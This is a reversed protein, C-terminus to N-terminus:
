LSSSDLLSEWHGPKGDLYKERRWIEGKAPSAVAWELVACM